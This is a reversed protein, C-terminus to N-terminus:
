KGRYKQFVAVAEAANAPYPLIDAKGNVEVVMCPTTTIKPRVATWLAKMIPTENAAEQQPDFRRWGAWQAEVTTNQNLYDRVAKADAVAVRTNDGSEIVFIVRFSKVVPVPEPAPPKPEPAPGPPIPPPRPGVVTLVLETTLVDEGSPVAALLTYVGADAWVAIRKGDLAIYDVGDPVRWTVKKATTEVSVICKKGVVANQAKGPTLKIADSVKVDSKPPAPDAASLLGCALIGAVAAYLFRMSNGKPLLPAMTLGPWSEM